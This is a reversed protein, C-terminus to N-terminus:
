NDTPKKDNQEDDAYTGYEDNNCKERMAEKRKLSFHLLIIVLLSGGLIGFYYLYEGSLLYGRGIYAMFSLHLLLALPLFTSRKFKKPRNQNM